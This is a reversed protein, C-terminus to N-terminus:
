EERGALGIAVDGRAQEHPQVRHLLMHAPDEVFQAGAVTRLGDGSRAIEVEHGSMRSLRTALRSYDVWPYVKTCHGCRCRERANRGRGDSSGRDSPLGAIDLLVRARSSRVARRTM